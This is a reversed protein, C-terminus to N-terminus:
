WSIENWLYTNDEDPLSYMYTVDNIPLVSLHAIYTYAVKGKLTSVKVYGNRTKEEEIIVPEGHHLWGIITADTSPKRRLALRKPINAFALPKVEGDVITFYEWEPQKSRAETILSNSQTSVTGTLYEGYVYVISGNYNVEYYGDRDPGALITMSSGKRAGGVIEGQPNARLNLVDATVYATTGVELNGEGLARSISLLIIGLVLLLVLATFIIATRRKIKIEKKM